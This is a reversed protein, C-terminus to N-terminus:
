RSSVQQRRRQHAPASTEGIPPAAEDRPMGVEDLNRGAASRRAFATQLQHQRVLRAIYPDAWPLLEDASDTGQVDVVTDWLSSTQHAPTNM